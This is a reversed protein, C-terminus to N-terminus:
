EWVPTARYRTPDFHEVQYTAPNLQKYFYRGHKAPTVGTSVSPWLAGSGFGPLGAVMGWAGQDRLAALNPFTGRDCGDLLLEPSASDLAILVTRIRRSAM